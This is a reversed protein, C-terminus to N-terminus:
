VGFVATLVADKNNVTKGDITLTKDNNEYGVIKDNHIILYKTARLGYTDSWIMFTHGKGEGITAIEIKPIFYSQYEKQYPVNNTNDYPQFLLVIGNNQESIKQSLNAIQSGHMYSGGTDKWLIKQGGNISGTVNLDGKIITDGLQAM